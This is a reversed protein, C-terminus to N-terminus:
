LTSKEYYSVDPPGDLFALLQEFVGNHSIHEIYKQHCGKSQWEEELLMRGDDFLVSVSRCGSFNRVGPLQQTLFLFLNEKDNNKLMCLLRVEVSM